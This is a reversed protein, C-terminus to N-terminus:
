EGPKPSRSMAVTLVLHEPLWVSEYGLREAEETVTLHFHSNLAGLALGFRM